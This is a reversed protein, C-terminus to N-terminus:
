IPIIPLQVLEIFKMIHEQWMWFKLLSRKVIEALNRKDSFSVLASFFFVLFFNVTVNKAHIMKEFSTQIFSINHNFCKRTKNLKMVVKNSDFYIKFHGNAVENLKQKSSKECASSRTLKSSVLAWNNLIRALLFDIFALGRPANESSHSM